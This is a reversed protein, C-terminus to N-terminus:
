LSAAKDSRCLSRAKMLVSRWLPRSPRQDGDQVIPGRQPVFRRVDSVKSALAHVCVVFAQLQSCLMTQRSQSSIWSVLFERYKIPVRLNTAMNVFARWKNRDQALHIWDMGGKTNKLIMKLLVRGDIDLGEM